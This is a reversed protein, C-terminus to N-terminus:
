SVRFRALRNLGTQCRFHLGRMLLIASGLPIVISTPTDNKFCKTDSWFAM